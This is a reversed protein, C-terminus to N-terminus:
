SLACFRDCFTSTVPAVLLQGSGGVAEGVGELGEVGELGDVGELGELGDVGELGDLGEAGEVEDGGDVGEAGVPGASLVRGELGSPNTALPTVCDLTVRVHFNDVSLTPTAPYSIRL